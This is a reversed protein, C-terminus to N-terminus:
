LRRFHTSCVCVKKDTTPQKTDNQLSARACTFTASILRASKPVSRLRLAGASFALQEIAFHTVLGAFASQDNARASSKNRAVPADAEIQQQQQQATLRSKPWSLAISNRNRARAHLLSSIMIALARICQQTRTHASPRCIPRRLCRQFHLNSQLRKHTHACALTTCNNQQARRTACNTCRARKNNASWKGRRREAGIVSRARADGVRLNRAGPAGNMTVLQQRASTCREAKRRFQCSQTQTHSFCLNTFSLLCKNHASSTTM